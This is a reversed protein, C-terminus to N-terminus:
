IFSGLNEDCIKKVYNDYSVFTNHKFYFFFIVWM